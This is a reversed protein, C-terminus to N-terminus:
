LQKESSVNIDIDEPDNLRKNTNLQLSIISTQDSGSRQGNIKMSQGTGLV